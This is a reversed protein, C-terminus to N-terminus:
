VQEAQERGSELFRVEVDPGQIHHFLHKPLLCRITVRDDDFTQRYIEAHAALYALVRGNAAATVVEAEAFDASIAAIVAERLDGLGQKKAASVAVARPHNKM